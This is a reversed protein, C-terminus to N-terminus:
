LEGAPILHSGGGCAYLQVLGRLETRRTVASGATPLFVWRECSLHEGCHTGPTPSSHCHGCQLPPLAGFRLSRGVHGRRRLMCGLRVDAFSLSFVSVEWVLWCDPRGGVLSFLSGVGKGICVVACWSNRCLQRTSRVQKM